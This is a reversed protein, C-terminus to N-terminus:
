KNVRSAPDSTELTSSPGSATELTISKGDSKIIKRVEGARTGDKAPFVTITIQEGAKLATKGWGATSWQYVGAGEATWHLVNGNRDEVDFGLQVHPNKYLFETVTAKLTITRTQDYLTVTGHHAAMQLCTVFLGLSM